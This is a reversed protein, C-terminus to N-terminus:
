LIVSDVVPTSEAVPVSESTSESASESSASTPQAPQSPTRFMDIARGILSSDQFSFAGRSQAVELHRIAVQIYDNMTFNSPYSIKMVKDSPSPQSAPIPSPSSESSTEAPAPTSPSSSKAQAASLSQMGYLAQTIFYSEEFTFKGARRGADLGSLMVQLAKNNDLEIEKTPTSTSPTSIPTSTSSM